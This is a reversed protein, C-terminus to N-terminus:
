LIKLKKLEEIKVTPPMEGKQIKMIVLKAIKEAGPRFKFGEAGPLCPITTQHILLKGDL